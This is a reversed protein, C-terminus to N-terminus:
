EGKSREKSSQAGEKQGCRLWWGGLVVSPGTVRRGAQLVTCGGRHQAESWLLAAPDEELKCGWSSTLIWPLAPVSLAAPAPHRPAQLHLRGAACTQSEKRCSFLAAGAGLAQPGDSGYSAALSSWLQELGHGPNPTTM